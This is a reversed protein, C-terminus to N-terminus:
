VHLALPAGTLEFPWFALTEIVSMADSILQSDGVRPTPARPQTSDVPDRSKVHFGLQRRAPMWPRVPSRASAHIQTFGATLLTDRPIRLAYRSRRLDRRGWGEM